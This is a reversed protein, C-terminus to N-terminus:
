GAKEHVRTLRDHDTEAVWQAILDARCTAEEARDPMKTSGRCARAAQREMRAYVARAGEDSSLEHAQVRFDVKQVVGKAQAPAGSALALAGAAVVMLLGTSLRFASLRSSPLNSFFRLNMSPM